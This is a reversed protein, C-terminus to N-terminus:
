DRPFEVWFVGRLDGVEFGTAADQPYAAAVREAIDPALVEGHCTLCLPQMVIPEVYGVRQDPLAVAAPELDAQGQLYGTLVPTVWDPPANEPNRLKHSSRGVVIGDTSLRAAIAPAKDKCVSIAQEAGQELGGRLAQQLEQKFPKLLAAGRATDADDGRAPSACFGFALAVLALVNLSRPM